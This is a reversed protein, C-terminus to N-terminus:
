KVEDNLAKPSTGFFERINKEEVSMSITTHNAKNKHNLNFTITKSILFCSDKDRLLNSQSHIQVIRAQFCHALNPHYPLYTNPLSVSFVDHPM